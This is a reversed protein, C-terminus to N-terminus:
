GAESDKKGPRSGVTRIRIRGPISKIEKGEVKVNLMGLFVGAGPYGRWTNDRNRQTSLSELSIDVSIGNQIRAKSPM